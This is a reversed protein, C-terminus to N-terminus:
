QTVVYQFRYDFTRFINDDDMTLITIVPFEKLGTETPRFGIFITDNRILLQKTCGRVKHTVTDVAPVQVPQCEFFANTIKLTSDAIFIEALFENGTSVSDPSIRKIVPAQRKSGDRNRKSLTLLQEQGDYKVIDTSKDSTCSLLCVILVLISRKM